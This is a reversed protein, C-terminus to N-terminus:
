SRCSGAFAEVGWNALSVAVNAEAGTRRADFSEAQTFRGHGKATLRLLLEGFTVVTMKEITEMM